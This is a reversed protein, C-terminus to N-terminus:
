KFSQLINDLSTEVGGKFVVIKAVKIKQLRCANLDTSADEYNDRVKTYYRTGDDVQITQLELDKLNEFAEILKDPIKEYYTGLDIRFENNLDFDNKLSKVIKALFSNSFKRISGLM